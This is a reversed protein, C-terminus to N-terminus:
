DGGTKSKAPAPKKGIEAGGTEKLSKIFDDPWDSPIEEGAKVLEGNPGHINVKALLAM